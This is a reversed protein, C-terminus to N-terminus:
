LFGAEKLLGSAKPGNNASVLIIPGTCGMGTEAYIGATMVATAADELEMVEVGPIEFTVVEKAPKNSSVNIATEKQEKNNLTDFIEEFRCKKLLLEEDKIIKALNNKACNYAYAVAGAIVNAGSARSVIFVPLNFGFGIGPGYGYGSVEYGGGSNFSAFMKMLVNGTLSDCVVVDAAANILDNGRLLSGGDARGSEGFNIPYGNKVLEELARQANRANDINLLGISPNTLGGAKAAIIGYLANKFIAASRNTASTGTTCAIFFERGNAPAIVKGVTSVGIPFNYHMTVVGDLEGKKLAEEMIKHATDASAAEILPLSSSSKPGILMVEVGDNRGAALEAGRIVEAEGLESGLTVVGIRIKKGRGNNYQGTELTAALDFFTSKISEKVKNDM